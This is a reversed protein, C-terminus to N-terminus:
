KIVEIKFEWNKMSGENDESAQQWECLHDFAAKEIITLDSKEAARANAPGLRDVIGWPGASTHRGKIVVPM